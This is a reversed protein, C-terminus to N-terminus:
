HLVPVAYAEGNVTVKPLQADTLQTDASGCYVYCINGEPVTNKNLNVAIGSFDTTETSYPQITLIGAYTPDPDYESMVNDNIEVTGKPAGKFGIRYGGAVEFVNGNCKITANDEIGYLSVQNHACSKATFYNNSISSGDAMANYVDILNYIKNSGNETWDGFFCGEIVIKCPTTGTFAFPMTKAVDGVLGSVYCNIIKVSKANAVKILCGNTLDLGRLEVEADANDVKIAGSMVTGEVAAPASEADMTAIATTPAVNRPYDNAGVIKVSKTVTIAPEYEGKDLKLTAGEELSEVVKDVTQYEPGVGIKVVQKAEDPREVEGIGIIDSVSITVLDADFEASCDIILSTINVLKHFYSEPPCTQTITARTTSCNMVRVAGSITVEETGKRYKLDRIIDEEHIEYVTSEGNDNVILNACIRPKITVSM